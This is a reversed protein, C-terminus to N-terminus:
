NFVLILRKGPRLIMQSFCFNYDNGIALFDEGNYDTSSVLVIEPANFDESIFKVSGPNNCWEGLDEVVNSYSGAEVM